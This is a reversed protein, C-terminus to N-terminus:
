SSVGAASAVVYVAILILTGYLAYIANKTKTKAKYGDAYGKVYEPSKGMLATTPVSPEIIYALIIGFVGLLCGALIWAPNGQADREGAIKGKVYDSVGRQATLSPLSLLAFVLLVSIIKKTKVM